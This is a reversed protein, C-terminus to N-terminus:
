LSSAFHILLKALAEFNTLSLNEATDFVDHYYGQGGNTYIFFAPIGLDAFHVHDSNRSAGRPKVEPLYNYTSNIKKLKDFRDKLVEGNVVTIGHEANGMIDLNIVMKIKKLDFLPNKTFYASGMLGAEEGSFLIFAINCKLKIKAFHEALYLVMATGSANDSAGPFIANGQMGLHDYHATFVIFSDSKKSKLYGAVNKSEFNTNLKHNFRIEIQDKQKIVSDMVILSSFEDLVSALSHTMKKEETFIFIAPFHNYKRCSDLLNAKRKSTKHLVLAEDASFGKRIKLFLLDRELTDSPTFHILKFKGQKGPSACDLIYDKGQLLPTGDLACYAPEPHTIIDFTYTQLYTRKSFPILKLSNFKQSLYTAALNVGNQVYGRGAMEKSCLQQIVSKTAPFSQATLGQSCSFNFVFFALLYKLRSV